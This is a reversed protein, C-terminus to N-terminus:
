RVELEAIVLDSEHSELEFRGAITATLRLRAPKGPAVDGAVDYGHLHVRDARDSRVVILVRKGKKVNWQKRGGAPQGGKMTLTLTATAPPPPAATETHPVATTKAPLAEPTPAAQPEGAESTTTGPEASGGCGALALVAALAITLTAAKRM